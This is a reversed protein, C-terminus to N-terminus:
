SGSKVEEMIEMAIRADADSVGMKKINGSLEEIRNKDNVLDLTISVLKEKTEGDKVMIAANHNVLNMANATQHDEAAFPYPVLIAPKGLVCLEAIAM